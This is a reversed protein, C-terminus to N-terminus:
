PQVAPSIETLAINIKKNQKIASIKIVNRIARIVKGNKGIIKGMDSPDVTISFNIIGQDEQEKIEIKDPNDVIQSVIYELAKKM